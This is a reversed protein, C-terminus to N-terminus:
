CYDTFVGNMMSLYAPFSINSDNSVVMSSGSAEDGLVIGQPALDKWFTTLFQQPEQSITPDNAGSFFEEHRVGDWTIFIVNQPAALSSFSVFLLTILLIKKM